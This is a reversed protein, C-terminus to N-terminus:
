RAPLTECAYPVRLSNPPTQWPQRGLVVGGRSLGDGNVVMSPKRGADLRGPPPAASLVFYRVKSLPSPPAATGQQAGTEGARAQARRGGRRELEMQRTVPPAFGLTEREWLCRGCICRVCGQVISGFPADYKHRADNPRERAGTQRTPPEREVHRSAM